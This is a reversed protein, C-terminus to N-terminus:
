SLDGPEYNGNTDIRDISLGPSPKPGVDALFVAFSDRWEPCVSIGRAGYYKWDSGNPNECRNIM